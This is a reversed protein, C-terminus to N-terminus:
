NPPLTRGGTQQPAASRGGGDRWMARVVTLQELASRMESAGARQRPGQPLLEAPLRAEGAAQRTRNQVSRTILRRNQPRVGRRTPARCRFRFFGQHRAVATRRDLEAKDRFLQPLEAIRKQLLMAEEMLGLKERRLRKLVTIGKCESEYKKFLEQAAQRTAAESQFPSQGLTKVYM